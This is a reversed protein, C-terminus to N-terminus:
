RLSLLFGTTFNADADFVFQTNTATQIAKLINLGSEKKKDGDPNYSDLSNLTAYRNSGLTSKVLSYPAGGILFCIKRKETPVRSAVSQVREFIGQNTNLENRFYNSGPLEETRVKGNEYWAIKTNNSGLDVVFAQSAYKPNMASMFGYTAEQEPTMLNVIFGRKKLEEAIPRMIDEKLAGSSVVFHLNNQKVGYNGMVELYNKLGAKLEEFTATGNKIGSTDFMKKVLKMNKNSDIEVVFGNFGSAGVEVVGKLVGNVPQPPLEINVNPASIQGIGLASKARDIAGAGNSAPSQATVAGNSEGTGVLGLKQNIFFFSILLVLTGIVAIPKLKSKDFNM